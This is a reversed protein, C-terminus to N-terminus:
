EDYGGEEIFKELKKLKALDLRDGFDMYEINKGALRERIHQCELRDLGESLSMKRGEKLWYALYGIQSFDGARRMNEM